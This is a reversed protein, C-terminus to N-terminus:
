ARFTLQRCVEMQDDVGVVFERIFVPQPPISGPFRGVRGREEDVPVTDDKESLDARGMTIARGRLIHKSFQHVGFSLAPPSTNMQQKVGEHRNPLTPGGDNGSVKGTTRSLAYVGGHVLFARANISRMM